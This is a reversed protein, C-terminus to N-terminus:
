ATLLHQDFWVDEYDEGVSFRWGPPLGLFKISRQCLESLHQVHLPKFFDPRDSYEGAWIYWGTTGAEQPHRLGYLPLQGAIAAESLGVLKDDPAEVFDTGNLECVERQQDITYKM